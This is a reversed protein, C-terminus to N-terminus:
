RWSVIWKRRKYVITMEYDHCRDSFSSKKIYKLMSEKNDFVLYGSHKIKNLDLKSLQEAM